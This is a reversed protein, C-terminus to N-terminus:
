WGGGIMVAVVGWWEDGSGDGDDYEPTDIELSFGFFNIRKLIHSNMEISYNFQGSSMNLVCEGQKDLISISLNLKM